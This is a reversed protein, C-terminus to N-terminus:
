RVVLIVLFVEAAFSAAVGTAGVCVLLLVLALLLIGNTKLLLPSMIMTRLPSLGVVVVLLVSLLLLM